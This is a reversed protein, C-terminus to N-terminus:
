WHRAVSVRHLELLQYLLVAAIDKGPVSPGIQFSCRAVGLVYAGNRPTSSMM